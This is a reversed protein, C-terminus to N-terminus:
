LPNPKPRARGEHDNPATGRFRSAAESQATAQMNARLEASGFHWRSASARELADTARDIIEVDHKISTISRAKSRLYVLFLSCFIAIADPLLAVTLAIYFARANEEGARAFKILDNLVSEIVLTNKSITRESTRSRRAYDEVSKRLADFREEYEKSSLEAAAAFRRFSAVRRALETAAGELILAAGTPNSVVREIRTSVDLPETALSPGFKSELQRRKEQYSLAEQGCRAIGSRDRGACSEARRKELERLAGQYAAGIDKGLVDIDGAM